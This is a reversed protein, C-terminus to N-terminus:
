CEDKCDGWEDKLNETLSLSSVLFYRMGLKLADENIQFLPHHHPYSAGNEDQKMAGIGIYCGPVVNSFASFDEGGLMPRVIDVREEKFHTKVLEIITSTLAHDNVVPDYGYQYEFQAIAGHAEAISTSIQEINMKIKERIENTLARVSGGIHAQEPIVNYAEGSYFRTVSVVGNDFPSLVRSTIYQLNTVIQAAIALADIAESPESAHGSKGKVTIDFLDSAASAPGETIQIEGTPVTSWLHMGLICDVGKLVGAEVMERAGGPPVEEAHQFLFIFEGFLDEQMEALIKATGLLMATHGDHGCAHMVGDKKSAYSLGTEERIPLADIDARLAVTKGKGKKGKLRGLVSTKTPQVVEIGGFSELENIIFKSTEYEEFSLEPHEHLYRRWAVVQPFLREVKKRIMGERV